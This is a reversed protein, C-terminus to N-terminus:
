QFAPQSDAVALHLQQEPLQRPPGRDIVAAVDVAGGDLEHGARVKPAAVEWVAERQNQAGGARATPRHPPHHAYAARQTPGECERPAERQGEYGQLMRNRHQGQDDQGIEQHSDCGSQRAGEDQCDGQHLFGQPYDLYCNQNSAQVSYASDKRLLLIVSPQEASRLVGRVERLLQHAPEGGGQQLCGAPRGGAAADELLIRKDATGANISKNYLISPVGDLGIELVM